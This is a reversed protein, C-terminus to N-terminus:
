PALLVNHEGDGLLCQTGEEESADGHVRGLPAVRDTANPVGRGAHNQAIYTAAPEENAGHILVEGTDRQAGCRAGGWFFAPGNAM